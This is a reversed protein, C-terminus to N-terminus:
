HWFGWAGAQLDWKTKPNSRTWQRTYTQIQQQEASWRRVGWSFSDWIRSSVKSIYPKTKKLSIPLGRPLYCFAKFISWSHFSIHFLIMSIKTTFTVESWRVFFSVSACLFSVVEALDYLYHPEPHEFQNGQQTKKIWNEREKEGHQKKKGEKRRVKLLNPSSHLPEGERDLSGRWSHAGWVWLQM